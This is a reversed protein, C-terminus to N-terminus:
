DMLVKTSLATGSAMVAEFARVAASAATAVVPGGGTPATMADLGTALDAALQRLQGLLTDGVVARRVADAGGLQVTLGDLRTPGTSTLTTSLASTVSVSGVSATLGLVLAPLGALGTLSWSTAAPNVEVKTNGMADVEVTRGAILTPGAMYIAQYFRVPQGISSLRPSPLGLTPGSPYVNGAYQEFTTLPLAITGAPDLPLAPFSNAVVVEWANPMNVPATGVPTARGSTPLVKRRVLGLTTSSAGAGFALNGQLAVENNRKDLFLATMGSSLTLTGQSSGHLYCGGSSRMDWEGPQLEAFQRWGPLGETSFRTLDSYGAGRPGAVTGVVYPQNLNDFGVVVHDLPRPMYRVWSSSGKAISLGLMPISVEESDPMGQLSVVMKGDATLVNRVQGVFLRDKYDAERNPNPQHEGQSTHRGGM